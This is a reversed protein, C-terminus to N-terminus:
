EIEVFKGNIIKKVAARSNINGDSDVSLTGLAGPFDSISSLIVVTKETDGDSKEFATILLSIIDYANGSGAQPLSNYKAKFDETFKETPNASTVYWQGELLPIAEKEEEFSEISTLPIKMGLEKIQKILPVNQGPLVKLIFADAKDTKAKLIATRFDKEQPSFLEDKLIFLNPDEKILADHVALIGQQNVGIMAIRKLGQKKAYEVYTKAENEPKIWHNFVFPKDKAITTDSAITFVIVKEKEGLPAIANSPGSFVAVTAKVKDLDVLKRFASVTKKSDAQDDEFVLEYTNKTNKFQEKALIAANKASEGLFSADGTLPLIVGIKIPEKSVSQSPSKKIAWVGLVIVAVVAVGIIIKKM